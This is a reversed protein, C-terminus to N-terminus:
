RSVPERSGGDHHASKTSAGRRLQSGRLQSSLADTANLVGQVLQEFLRPALAFLILVAGTGLAIALERLGIVSRDYRRNFM